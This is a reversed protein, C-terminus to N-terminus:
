GAILLKASKQEKKIGNVKIVFTLRV